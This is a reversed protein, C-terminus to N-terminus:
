PRPGTGIVDLDIYEHDAGFRSFPISVSEYVEPEKWLIVVLFTVVVATNSHRPQSATPFGLPSRFITHRPKTLHSM